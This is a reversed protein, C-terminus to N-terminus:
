QPMAPGKHVLTQREKEREGEAIIQMLEADTYERIDSREDRHIKMDVVSIARGETRDAIFTAAWQEGELALEYIKLALARKKALGTPPHPQEGIERLIDAWTRGNPQRGAPNGSQGPQWKAM